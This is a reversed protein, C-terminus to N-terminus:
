SLKTTKNYIDKKVEDELNRGTDIKFKRLLTYM